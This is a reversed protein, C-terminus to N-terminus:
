AGERHFTAQVYETLASRWDRMMDLGLLEFNYNRLSENGPRPAPLDFTKSSVPILTCTDIGAAALIAQAVEFRTVSGENVCHYKGFLGSDIFRSIARAMDVTYTPSGTKDNVVRLERQSRALDLIKPVFKKDEPGGGFMWCTYFIYYRSLLEKVILEGAYKSRGYVNVPNPDDYETYPTPKRGDYVSGTNIYVMVANTRQCAIAVHRTGLANTVYAQEPEEECRDVDTMAACHIVFDPDYRCIDSIILDSCRIDIEELDSPYLECREGFISVIAKGLMGKAGTVYVREL